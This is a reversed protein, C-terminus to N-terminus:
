WDETWFQDSVCIIMGIHATEEDLSIYYTPRRITKNALGADAQMQALIKQTLAQANEDPKGSDLSLQLLNALFQVALGEQKLFDFYQQTFDAFALKEQPAFQPLVRTLVPENLYLLVCDFGTHGEFRSQAHHYLSHFVQMQRKQADM